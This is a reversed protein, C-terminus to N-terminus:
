KAFFRNGNKELLMRTQQLLLLVGRAGDLLTSNDFIQPGGAFNITSGWNTTIHEFYNKCHIRITKPPWSAVTIGLSIVIIRLLVDDPITTVGNWSARPLSRLSKKEMISIGTQVEEILSDMITAGLMSDNKRKIRQDNWKTVLYASLGVVLPVIIQNLLQNM